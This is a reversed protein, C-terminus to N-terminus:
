EAVVLSRQPEIGVLIADAAEVGLVSVYSTDTCPVLIKVYVLASDDVSIANDVEVCSKVDYHWHAVLTLAILLM